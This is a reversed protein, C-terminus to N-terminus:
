CSEPFKKGVQVVEGGRHPTQNIGPCPATCRPSRLPSRRPVVNEPSYGTTPGCLKRGGKKPKASKTTSIRGTPQSWLKTFMGPRLERVSSRTAGLLTPANWRHTLPLKTYSCGQCRCRAQQQYDPGQGRPQIWSERCMQRVSCLTNFCYPLHDPPRRAKPHAGPLCHQQTRCNKGVTSLRLPSAPLNKPPHHTHTPHPPARSMSQCWLRM